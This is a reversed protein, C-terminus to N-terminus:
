ISSANLFLSAIALGIAIYLGCTASVLLLPAGSLVFGFLLLMAVSQLVMKWKGVIVPEVSEGRVYRRAARAGLLLEIGVLLLAVWFDVYRAVFLLATTGILLKDAIPDAIKGWPTIQNRMRALAGDLLDTIATLVFVAAGWAYIHYVLLIAVVPVAALRVITLANPTVALPVLRLITGRLFVDVMEVHPGAIEANKIYM